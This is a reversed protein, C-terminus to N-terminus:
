KTINNIWIDVMFPIQLVQSIIETKLVYTQVLPNQQVQKCQGIVFVFNGQVCM